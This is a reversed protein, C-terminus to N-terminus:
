KSIITNMSYKHCNSTPQCTCSCRYTSSVRSMLKVSATDADDDDDDDNTGIKGVSLNSDSPQYALIMLRIAIPLDENVM